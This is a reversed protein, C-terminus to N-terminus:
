DYAVVSAGFKFIMPLPFPSDVFNMDAGFHQIVMGINIRRWGTTYFTGMDSSWGTATKDALREQLFKLSAGVSFKDTLRLCCTAGAAMDSVTFTRGTGYPQAPTTEDMKDTFLSTMQIGVVGSINPVPMVGGIQILKIGAPYNIMTFTAEPKTLQILGAPNYYLASADDSVATFAEGMGVARASAGIKLFQLGATGVKAQGFAVLPLLILASLVSAGRLRNIM